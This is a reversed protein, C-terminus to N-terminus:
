SQNISEFVSVFYRMNELKVPYELTPLQGPDVQNLVNSPFTAKLINSPFTKPEPVRYWNSDSHYIREWLVRKRTEGSSRKITVPDTLVHNIMYQVPFTKSGVQLNSYSGASELFILLTKEKTNRCCCLKLTQLLTMTRARDAKFLENITFFTTVVNQKKFLEKAESTLCYKLIDENLFEVSFPKQRISFDTLKSNIDEIENDTNDVQDMSFKRKRDTEDFWEHNITQELKEVVPSWDAIDVATLHLRPCFEKNAQDLDKLFSGFAVIEAGAGGGISLVNLPKKQSCCDAANSDSLKYFNRYIHNGIFNYGEFELTSPRDKPLPINFRLLNYYGLARGPSWRLAYAELNELSGFASQYDRNYLATKVLQIREYLISKHAIAGEDDDSHGNDHDDSVKTEELLDCFAVKFLDLLIQLRTIDKRYDELVSEAQLIVEKTDINGNENKKRYYHPHKAAAEQIRLEARAEARAKRLTM